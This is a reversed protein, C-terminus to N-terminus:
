IASLHHKRFTKEYQLRNSTILQSNNNFNNYLEGNTALGPKSRVDYYRQNKSDSYSARNFTSLSLDKSIQYILNIDGNIGTQKTRDFNYHWGQLFNNNERGIWGTETGMKPSGDPHFPNDWPINIFAGYLAGGAGSAEDEFKGFDGNFQIIMQLKDNISHSVNARFNYAKSGTHRLTGQEEF